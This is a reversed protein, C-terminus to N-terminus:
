SILGSCGEGHRGFVPEPLAELGMLVMLPQVDIRRISKRDFVVIDRSVTAVCPNRVIALLMLLFIHRLFYRDRCPRRRGEGVGGGSSRSAVSIIKGPGGLRAFFTRDGPECPSRGLHGAGRYEDGFVTRAAINESAIADDIVRLRPMSTSVIADFFFFMSQVSATSVPRRAPCRIRASCAFCSSM